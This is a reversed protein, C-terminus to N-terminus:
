GDLCSPEFSGSFESNEATYLWFCNIPTMPQDATFTLPQPLLGGLTEDAITGYAAIVEERTPSESLSASNAEMTQKFLELSAYIATASANTWSEEDVGQAEMMDRFAQVPADDVFWPFANLGGTLSIGQSYLDYAATGASAGFRGEFGQTMCDEAVRAAVPVTTSLQIYDVGDDILQLCEATYNPADANVGLGGGFEIGQAEAAAEFLPTAAACSPSEACAVVAARTLDSGVGAAVQMNVVAPFTTTIGFWNPLVGWLTPNFGVGGVIAVEGSGLPEALAAETIPDAVMVGIFSPDNAIEEGAAAATPADANTAFIEVEIPHGAVGGAANTADVWAAVVDLGEGGDQGAAVTSVLALRIATGTPEEGGPAATASGDDTETTDDTADDSDDDSCAGAVLSFTAIAAVAVRGFAGSRRPFAM